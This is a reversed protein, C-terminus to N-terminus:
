LRCVKGNIMRLWVRFAEEAVYRNFTSRGGRYTIPIERIILGDRCAHALVEIQWGHMKAQYEHELLKKVADATFARLGSTWDTFQTSWALNCMATALRSMWMRRRSGNYTALPQFRSGLVMDAEGLSLVAIYADTALHSGGADLQVVSQCGADLAIRWAEVLSPGIGMPKEHRYVHAGERWALPGTWDSSGDDIVVVYFYRCLKRVLESITDAENLATICAGRM